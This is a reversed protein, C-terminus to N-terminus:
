FGPPCGFDHVPDFADPEPRMPTSRRSLSVGPMEWAVATVTDRHLRRLCRVRKHGNVVVHTAAKVVIPIQQGADAETAIFTRKRASDLVGAMGM